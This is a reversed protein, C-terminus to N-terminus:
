NDDSSDEVPRVQLEVKPRVAKFEESLARLKDRQSRGSYHTPESYAKELVQDALKEFDYNSM